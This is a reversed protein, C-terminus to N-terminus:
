PKQALVSRLHDMASAVLEPPLSDKNALTVDAAATKSSIMDSKARQDAM